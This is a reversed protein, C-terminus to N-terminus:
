EDGKPASFDAAQSSETHEKKFREVLPEAELELEDALLRIYVPAHMFAGPFDFSDAEIIQIIRTPVKTRTSLESYELGADERGKRLIDGVGERAQLREEDVGYAAWGLEPHLQMPNAEETNEPATKAHYARVEEPGHGPEFIGVLLNDVAEKYRELLEESAGWRAALDAFFMAMRSAELAEQIKSVVQKLGPDDIEEPARLAMQGSAPGEVEFTPSYGQLVNEFSGKGFKLAREVRFYGAPVKGRAPVRGREYNSITNESVGAADALERQDMGLQKRRTAIWSGLDAWVAPDTTTAMLNM